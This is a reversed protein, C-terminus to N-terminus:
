SSLAVGIQEYLDTYGLARFDRRFSQLYDEFARFECNVSYFEDFILLSDPKLFRNLTSLCYLTSSYLDADLHLVVKGRPEFDAAFSELTDQFLGKIFRVRSDDIQPMKGDTSFHGQPVTYTGNKWEEPLGEFTDFGFFRSDLHRNLESWRRISEGRFVGFELYDIPDGGIETLQLHEYLKFREPFHRVPPQFKSRMLANFKLLQSFSELFHSPGAGSAFLLRKAGRNLGRMM